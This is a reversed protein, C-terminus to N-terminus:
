QSGGKVDKSGASLRLLLIFNSGKESQGEVRDEVRIYGGYNELVHKTLTLGLGLGRASEKRNMLQDFILGKEMDVIGPGYDKVQIKIFPTHPMIEVDIEIQVRDRKDFKMSNHLLSKFVEILYEDATVFYQGPELNSELAMVKHPFAREVIEKAALLSEGLDCLFMKPARKAIRLLKKVNSILNSGRDVEVVSEQILNKLNDPLEPSHLAVEFTSIIEQNINTLDHTMLDLLFEVREQEHRLEDLIRNQENINRFIGAAAVIQKGKYIPFLRGDVQVPNGNKSVFTSAFDSIEEGKLIRSMAEEARRLYGPFIFDKLKINPLDEENYQLTKLWTSNAYEITGDKTISQILDTTGEILSHILDDNKLKTEGKKNQNM